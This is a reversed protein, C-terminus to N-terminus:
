DSAPPPTLDMPQGTLDSLARLLSEAGPNAALAEEILATAADRRGEADAIRALMMWAPVQQPDLTVAERFAASAMPLNRMTLALGALRMQIEPFDAQNALSERWEAMAADLDRQMADPLYAVPAGLMQRAATMRVARSPDDLMPVVRTVRQQAGAIRQLSAAADRVLPDEDSLLVEAADAAAADGGQELLWLATARVIGPADTDASLAALDTGAADPNIRGHALTEGYHSTRKAADPYWDAIRAAAWAPDRDEHCDTCADPAGTQLALDPRPIRFSHDRRGDIGMYVREIMHCSKCEAGPTGEPHHHHAPTDYQAMPLSPFDPNGAPSHCQTCVANGEAVLRTSHADHCNTCGVGMAYMKSQLFSGYVYVEELIQGDSHYLGPRLLSLGYADHYPTGPLPNGNGFAERRSHCGACQQITSETSDFDASFGYSDLGAGSVPARTEAWDLHAQGPGHCSECGVGIEAQTSSYSRTTADYNKEFGTAHCEACRANWNKYPGTWHLGDSPPLPTDPYLHYWERRGVDWVVDFSQLRGDGTELLYQQLPRIGAVSHVRYEQRSGDAETVDVFYDGDRISFDVIIGTGEFRTGDFDAVVTDPGPLTWALHHDSGRWAEAASEHCDICTESGVYAPHDSPTQAVASYALWVLALCTQLARSRKTRM